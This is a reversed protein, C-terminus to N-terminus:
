LLLHNILVNGTDGYNLVSIFWVSHTKQPSTSICRRRHPSLKPSPYSDITCLKYLIFVNRRHLPLASYVMFVLIHTHTHIHPFIHIYIYIYIYIHIYVQINNRLYWEILKSENINCIIYPSFRWCSASFYVSSHGNKINLFALLDKALYKLAGGALFWRRCIEGKLLECLTETPVCEDIKVLRHFM